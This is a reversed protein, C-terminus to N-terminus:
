TRDQIAGRSPMPLSSGGVAGIGQMGTTSLPGESADTEQVNTAGVNRLRQLLGAFDVGGGADTPASTTDGVVAREVLLLLHSFDATIRELAKEQIRCRHEAEEARLLANTACAGEIAGGKSSKVGM